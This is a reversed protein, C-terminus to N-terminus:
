WSAALGAVLGGAETDWLAPRVRLGTSSSAEDTEVRPAVVLMVVGAVLAVGGAILCGTSANALNRMRKSADLGDQNCASGNCNEDVTSKAGLALGGTIAGVVVTVLGLGGIVAGAVRLAGGPRAAGGEGAEDGADPSAAAQPRPALDIRKNDGRGLKVRMSRAPEGLVEVTV